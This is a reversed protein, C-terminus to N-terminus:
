WARVVGLNCVSERMHEEAANTPGVVRSCALHPAGFLIVFTASSESPPNTVRLAILAYPTAVTETAVEVFSASLDAAFFTAPEGVTAAERAAQKAESPLTRDGM